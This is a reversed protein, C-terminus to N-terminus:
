SGTRLLLMRRRLLNHIEASCMTTSVSSRFGPTLAAIISHAWRRPEVEPVRVTKLDGPCRLALECVGSLPSRDSELGVGQPLVHLILV